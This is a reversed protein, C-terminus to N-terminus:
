LFLLSSPTVKKNLLCGMSITPESRTWPTFSTSVRKPGGPGRPRRMESTTGPVSSVMSASATIMANPNKGLGGSQNTLCCIASCALPWTRTEAAGWCRNWVVLGLTNAPPSMTRPDSRTTVATNSPRSAACPMRRYRPSRGASSSALKFRQAVSARRRSRRGAPAASRPAQSCPRHRVCPRHARFFLLQRIAVLHAAIRRFVFYSDDGRAACLGPDVGIDGLPYLHDGGAHPVRPAHRDIAHVPTRPWRGAFSRLEVVGSCLRRMAARSREMRLVGDFAALLSVAPHRDARLDLFRAASAVM